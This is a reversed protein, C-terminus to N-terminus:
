RRLSRAAQLELRRQHARYTPSCARKLLSAATRHTKLHTADIMVPEPNRGRHALAAFIKNFVGLRSWRVFRNYITKHRGYEPPADRWRLGNKIVFVIASGIRTSRYWPGISRREDLPANKHLSRGLAIFYALEAARDALKRCQDASVFPDVSQCLKACPCSRRSVCAALHIQPCALPACNSRDLEITDVWGLVTPPSQIKM